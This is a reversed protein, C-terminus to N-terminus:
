IKNLIANFIFFIQLIELIQNQDIFSLLLSWM